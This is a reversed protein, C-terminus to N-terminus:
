LVRNHMVRKQSQVKNDEPFLPPLSTKRSASILVDFANTRPQSEEDGQVSGSTARAKLDATPEHLEFKIYRGFISVADSVPSNISISDFADIKSRGISAGVSHERLKEPFAWFDIKITGQKVGEYLEGITCDSTYGGVINWPLYITAGSSIQISVLAMILIYHVYLRQTVLIESM